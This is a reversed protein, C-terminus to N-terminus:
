AGFTILRDSLMAAETLQGLGSLQYPAAINYAITEHRSAENEDLVGRKLAAAICVVMDLDHEEALEKWLKHTDQEDRQPAALMSATHVSEGYFFIRHIEHGSTLTAKCFRYATHVSQSNHASGYILISFKM